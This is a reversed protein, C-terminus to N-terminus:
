MRWIDCMCSALTDMDHDLLCRSIYLSLSLLLPSLSSLSSLSRSLAYVGRLPTSPLVPLSAPLIAALSHCCLLPVCALLRRSHRNCPAYRGHQCCLLHHSRHLLPMASPFHVILPPPCLAPLAFCFHTTTRPSCARQQRACCIRRVCYSPRAAVSARHRCRPASDDTRTQHDQQYNSIGSQFYSLINTKEKM